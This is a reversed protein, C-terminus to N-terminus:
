KSDFYARLIKKYRNKNKFKFLAYSIKTKNQFLPNKLNNLILYISEKRKILMLSDLFCQTKLLVFNEVEEYYYETFEANSKGFFILSLFDSTMNLSECEFAKEKIENIFDFFEDYRMAYYINFNESKLLKISLKEDALCNANLFIFIVIFKLFFSKINSKKM